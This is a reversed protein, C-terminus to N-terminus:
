RGKNQMSKIPPRRGSFTKKKKKPTSKEMLRFNGKEKGGGIIHNKIAYVEEKSLDALTGEGKPSEMFFFRQFDELGGQYLQGKEGSTKTMKEIAVEEGL